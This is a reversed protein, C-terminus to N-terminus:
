KVAKAEKKHTIFIINYYAYRLHFTRWKLVTVNYSIIFSSTIFAICVQHISGPMTVAGNVGTEGRRTLISALKSRGRPLGPKSEGVPPNRKKELCPLRTRDLMFTRSKETCCWALGLFHVIFLRQLAVISMILVWREWFSGFVFSFTAGLPFKNM